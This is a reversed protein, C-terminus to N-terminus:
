SKYHWATRWGALFIHGVELLVQGILNGAEVLLPM